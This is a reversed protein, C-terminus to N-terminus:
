RVLTSEPNRLPVMVLDSCRCGGRQQMSRCAVSPRLRGRVLIIGASRRGRQVEVTPPAAARTAAIAHAAAAASSTVDADMGAMVAAANEVEPLRQIWLLLLEWCGM